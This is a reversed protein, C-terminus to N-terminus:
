HWLLYVGDVSELARDISLTVMFRIHGILTHFVHCIRM